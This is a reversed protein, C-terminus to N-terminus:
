GGLMWHEKGQGDIQKLIKTVKRKVWGSWRAQQTFWIQDGKELNQSEM